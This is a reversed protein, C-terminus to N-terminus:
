CGSGAWGLFVRPSCIRLDDVHSGLVARDDTVLAAGQHSMALAILYEDDPDGKVIPAIVEPDPVGYVLSDIAACYM